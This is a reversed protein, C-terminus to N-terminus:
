STETNESTRFLHLDRQPFPIIINEERFADDIKFRLESKIKPDTFSDNIYFYIGFLLASDGFDEFLVFPQPNKLIGKQQAAM